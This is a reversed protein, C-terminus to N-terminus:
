KTSKRIVIIAYSAVVHPLESIRVDGCLVLVSCCCEHSTDSETTMQWFCLFHTYCKSDFGPCILPVNVKSQFNLLVLFILSFIALSQDEITIQQAVNCKCNALSYIQESQVNYFFPWLYFHVGKRKFLLDILSGKRWAIVYHMVM